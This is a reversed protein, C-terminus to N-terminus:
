PKLRSVVDGLIGSHSDWGRQLPQAQALGTVVAKGLEMLGLIGRAQKGGAPIAGEPGRHTRQPRACHTNPPLLAPPQSRPDRPRAHNSPAGSAALEGAPRPLFCRPAPAWGRRLQTRQTLTAASGPCRGEAPEVRGGRRRGRAKQRPRWGEPQEPGARSGALWREMVQSSLSGRGGVRGPRRAEDSGRQVREQGKERRAWHVQDGSRQNGSGQLM